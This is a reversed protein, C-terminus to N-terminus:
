KLLEITENIELLEQQLAKIDDEDFIDKNEEITQEVEKYEEMLDLIEDSLVEVEEAKKIPKRDKIDEYKIGKRASRVLEAKRDALKGEAITREKSNKPAERIEDELKQITKDKAFIDKIMDRAQLEQDLTVGQYENGYYYIYGDKEVIPTSFEKARQEPTSPTSVGQAQANEKEEKIRSITDSAWEEGKTFKIDEDIGLVIDEKEDVIKKLGDLDEIGEPDLVDRKVVEFEKVKAVFDTDYSKSLNTVGFGTFSFEGYNDFYYDQFTDFIDGMKKTKYKDIFNQYLNRGGLSSRLQEVMRELEEGKPEELNNNLSNQIIYNKFETDSSFNSIQFTIGKNKTAVYNNPFIISTRRYTIDDNKNKLRENIFIDLVNVGYYYGQESPEKALREIRLIGNKDQGILDEEPMFNEKGKLNYVGLSNRHQFLGLDILKDLNTVAGTIMIDPMDSVDVVVEEEETTDIVIDLQNPQFPAPIILGDANKLQVFAIQNQDLEWWEAIEKKTRKQLSSWEQFKKQLDEKINNYLLTVEGELEKETFIDTYTVKDGIMLTRLVIKQKRWNPDYNSPYSIKSDSRVLEMMEVMQMPEYNLFDQTITTNWVKLDQNYKEKNFSGDELEYKNSYRSPEENGISNYIEKLEDVKDPKILPMTILDPRFVKIFEYLYFLPSGYTSTIDGFLVKIKPLEVIEEVDKFYQIMGNYKSYESVAVNKKKQLEKITEDRTFKMLKAPDTILNLLVEKPDFVRTDVENSSNTRNWIANIRKTKEDLKSFIFVDISNEMLPVVSRVYGFHNGQRWIRGNLQIIDTPNWDVLTNYLGTAWKQLNIGETISKTGLLLKVRRSHPIPIPKGEKDLEAELGNFLNALGSKGKDASEIWGDGIKNLKDSALYGGAGYIVGVEEAKLGLYDQAYQCILPFSGVGQPMYVVQGSRGWAFNMSDEYDFVSKICQFVYDLKPSAEIFEQPTPEYTKIGSYKYIYPSLNIEKGYNTARFVRGETNKQGAEVITNKSKIGLSLQEVKKEKQKAKKRRNAKETKKRKEIMFYVDNQWYGEPEVPTDHLGNWKMGLEELTQKKSYLVGDTKGKKTKPMRDKDLVPKGEKDYVPVQVSIDKVEKTNPPVYYPHAPPVFGGFMSYYKDLQNVGDVLALKRPEGETAESSEIKLQQITEIPRCNQLFDLQMKIPNGSDAEKFDPDDLYAQLRRHLFAQLPTYSLNTSIQNLANEPEITLGNLLMSKLPLQIKNPRKVLREEQEQTTKDFAMYIISQLGILNVWGTFVIKSEIKGAINPSVEEGLKAYTDYFDYIYGLGFRKMTGYMIYTLMSYVELPNNTFPTASLFITNGFNNKTQVYRVLYFLQKARASQRGSPTAEKLEAYNNPKRRIKTPDKKGIGLDIQTDLPKGKVSSFLAKFNHFEDTVLMDPSIDVDNYYVPLKDSGKSVKKITEATQEDVNELEKSPTIVKYVEDLQKRVQEEGTKSDGSELILVQQLVWNKNVANPSEDGDNEKLKDVNLYLNDLAQYTVVIINKDVKKRKIDRKITRVRVNYEKSMNYLERIKLTPTEKIVNKIENIYQQYVQNPLVFMPQKTLGMDLAQAVIFNACWTKGVGVGYALGVSGRSLWFRIANLKEPRITNLESGFYKRYSFGIPVKSLDPELLSNYNRNWIKILEERDEELLGKQIFIKFVREINENVVEDIEVKQGGEAFEFKGTGEGTENLEEVRAKKNEFYTAVNFAPSSGSITPNLNIGYLRANSSTLELLYLIFAEALTMQKLQRENKRDEVRYKQYEQTPKDYRNKVPKTYKVGDKNVWVSPKDIINPSKPDEQIPSYFQKISFANLNNCLDSVPKLDITRSDNDEDAFRIITEDVQIFAEDIAERHNKVAKEGFEKEIVDKSAFRGKNDGNFTTDKNYINGSQFIAKPQFRKNFDESSDYFLHGSEVLKRVSKPLKYPFVNWLLMELTEEFQTLLKVIGNIELQIEDFTNGSITTKTQWSYGEREVDKNSRKTNDVVRRSNIAKQLGNTVDEWVRVVMEDGGGLNKLLTFQNEGESNPEALSDWSRKLDEYFSTATKSDLGKMMQFLGLIDFNEAKKINKLWRYNSNSKASYDDGIIKEYYKEESGMPEGLAKLRSAEERYTKKAGELLKDFSDREEQNQEDRIVEKTYGELGNKLIDGLKYDKYELKGSIYDKWGKTEFIEIEDVGYNENFGGELKKGSITQWWVVFAMKDEKSIGENYASDVESFTFMANEYDEDSIEFDALNEKSKQLNKKGQEAQVDAINDVDEGIVYDTKEVSLTPDNPKDNSYTASDLEEISDIIEVKDSM